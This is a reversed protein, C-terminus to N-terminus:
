IIAGGSITMVLWSSGISTFKGLGNMALPWHAPWMVANALGLLAIFLVSVFGSTFIALVSFILGLVASVQLAKEQSIYRPMLLIGLIYGSLMASLTLSTFTKAQQLPIGQSVGYSIITDGAIVEVGIYLFLSLVG